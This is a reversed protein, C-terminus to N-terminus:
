IEVYDYVRLENRKRRKMLLVMGSVIMGFVVVSDDCESECM